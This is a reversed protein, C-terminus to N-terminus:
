NQGLSISFLRQFDTSQLIFAMMRIKGMKKARIEYNSVYQLAIQNRM